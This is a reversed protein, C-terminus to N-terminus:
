KGGRELAYRTAREIIEEMEVMFGAYTGDKDEFVSKNKGADFRGEKGEISAWARALDEICVGAHRMDQMLRAHRFGTM